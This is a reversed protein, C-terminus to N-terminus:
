EFCEPHIARALVELGAYVNPGPRSVLNADVSFVRGEKSATLDAYGAASTFLSIDGLDSPILIVDPDDTVLRELSYQPWAPADPLDRAVNYGGALTILEDIFSGPGASWDGYEGYSLAYYVTKAEADQVKAVIADRQQQMQEILQEGAEQVGCVAAIITITDDIGALESAEVALVNLDFSRLTEVTQGQLKDGAFVIDAELAVIAEASPGNYDGVVAPNDLGTPDSYADIGVIKDGLGLAVLLETNAPTLSVIKEVTADPDITYTYGLVDTVTQAQPTASPAPSQTADSTASPSASPSPSANSCASLFLALLLVVCTIYRFWQKRM